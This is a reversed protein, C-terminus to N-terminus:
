IQVCRWTPIRRRPPPSFRVRRRWRNKPEERPPPPFRSERFSAATVIMHLAVDVEEDIDLRASRQEIHNSELLVKLLKESSAHVNQRFTPQARM